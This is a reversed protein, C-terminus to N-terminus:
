EEIPRLWINRFRVPNNHAALVLPGQEQGVKYEPLRAHLTEGYIEQNHHVLVGNHFVTIRAPRILKGEAFRPAFFVIDFSQWQGPARCANVAPPTQGYIAAAQGDPYIPTNYSDFIQVEFQGMLTVGNNGRDMERGVPPDPTQWEVHLQCSGFQQKTALPRGIAVAIGNEVKWDCDHWQSLDKGDFLVIADSPAACGQDPTGPCGPDIKKPAPRDPDHVHWNSWPQVPTDKYGFVGSGDKAFQLKHQQAALRSSLSPAITLILLTSIVRRSIM